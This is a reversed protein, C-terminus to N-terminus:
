RGAAGDHGPADGNAAMGGAVDEYWSPLKTGPREFWKPVDPISALVINAWPSFAGTRVIVKAKAAEEDMVQKHPVHEIRVDPLLDVIEQHQVPNYDRLENPLLAWEVVLDGMLAALVPTLDPLDRAVALDIRWADRPIRFGADCLILTDGHGLSAIARNLEPHLLHHRKM